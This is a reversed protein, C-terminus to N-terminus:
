TASPGVVATVYDHRAATIIVTTISIIAVVRERWTASPGAVATVYDHSAATIIVTTIPIIAM